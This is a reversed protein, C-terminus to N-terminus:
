RCHLMSGDRTWWLSAEGTRELFREYLDHVVFLGVRQSVPCLGDRTKLDGCHFVARSFEEPGMSDDGISLLAEEEKEEGEPHGSLGNEEGRRRRTTAQQRAPCAIAVFGTVAACIRCAERLTLRSDLAEMIDSIERDAQRTSARSTNLVEPLLHQEFAFRLRHHALPLGVSVLQNEQPARAKLFAAEKSLSETEEDKGGGQGDQASKKPMEHLKGIENHRNVGAQCDSTNNGTKSTTGAAAAAAAGGSQDSGDGRVYDDMAAGSLGSAEVAAVARGSNAPSEGSRQGGRGKRPAQKGRKTQPRRPNGSGASSPRCRTNRASAASDSNETKPSTDVGGHAGPCGLIELSRATKRNRGERTVRHIVSAGAAWGFRGELVECNSVLDLFQAGSMSLKEVLARDGRTGMGTGGGCPEAEDGEGAGVSWVPSVGAARIRETRAPSSARQLRTPCEELALLGPFPSAAVSTTPISAQELAMAPASASNNTSGSTVSGNDDSTSAQSEEEDAAAGDEALLKKKSGNAKEADLTAPNTAPAVALRELGSERESYDTFMTLLVDRFDALVLQVRHRLDEVRISVGTNKWFEREAELVDELDVYVNAKVLAACVIPDERSDCPDVLRGHEGVFSPLRHPSWGVDAGSAPKERAM